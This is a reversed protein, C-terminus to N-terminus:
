DDFSTAIFQEGSFNGTLEVETGATTDAIILGNTILDVTVGFLTFSDAGNTVDADIPGEISLESMDDDERELSTAILSEATADIYAHLEVRDNVALDSLSFIRIDAASDDKMTTLNNIQFLKGFITVSSNDLDIADIYAEVKIEAGKRFEIEEAVLKGDVDFTGEVELLVGSIIDAATGYEFKTTENHIVPTGNIEFETESIVNSVTGEIEMESGDNADMDDELEIKSAIMTKTEIDIGSRGQAEVYTGAVLMAPLGDLTATSYDITLTGIMFQSETVDTGIVGKVEIKDGETYTESKVEIRTALIMGDGASYGSIEVVNGVAIESPQTIAVVNSEFTTDANVDVIQGMVDLKGDIAITNELVIGEIDDDYSVSTATGTMGDANVRGQLTVVMGISLADGTTSNGEELFSANTTTYEVGNVFISSDGFGTIVGSVTSPTSPDSPNPTTSSGSSCGALIVLLGLTGLTISLLSTHRTIIHTHSQM